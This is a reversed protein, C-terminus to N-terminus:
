RVCQGTSVPSQNDRIQSVLPSVSTSVLAYGVQNASESRAFIVGIVTGDPLVVPGGSNGSVVNTQLEYIHRSVIGGGYINRGLANMDRLVGAATIELPGGGPFGITAGTTGRPLTSNAFELPKANIGSVRLIAIDLEANFLVPTARYTGNTDIVSPQASGAIVHANTVILGDAALFGTGTVLGGCAFSEIRVIAGQTSDLAQRLEASSPPAVPDVPRPEIGTFVQPFLNPNLIRGLRDFVSPAPPLSQNLSQMVASNRIQQNFAPYPGGSLVSLLLWAVGLTVFASFTAGLISDIPDLKIKKTFKSLHHGITKGLASIAAAVLVIILIASLFQVLRDDFFGVVTPAIILGLGIGVLTGSLSFFGKFFGLHAWKIAQLLVFLIIILDLFNV